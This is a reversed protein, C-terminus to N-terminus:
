AERRLLAYVLYLFEAATIFTILFFGLYFAFFSTPQPYEIINGIFVLVALLALIWAMWEISTGLRDGSGGHSRQEYRALPAALAILMLSFGSSLKWTLPEPLDLSLFGAAALSGLLIALSNVIILRAFNAAFPDLARDRGGIAVLIAVFGGLGIGVQAMGM